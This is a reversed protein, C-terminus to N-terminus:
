VQLRADGDLHFSREMLLRQASNGILFYSFQAVHRASKGGASDAASCFGSSCSGNFSQAAIIYLATHYAHLIPLPISAFCIATCANFLTMVCALTKCRGISNMRVTMAGEYGAVSSRM